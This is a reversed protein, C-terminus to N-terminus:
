SNGKLKALGFGVWKVVVEKSKINYLKSKEIIKHINYTILITIIRTPILLIFNQFNNIKTFDIKLIFQATIGFIIEAVLMILIIFVVSKISQKLKLNYFYMLILSTYLIFMIQFLPSPTILKLLVNFVSLVVLILINKKIDIKLNNFKIFFYVAIINEILGFLLFNILINEM